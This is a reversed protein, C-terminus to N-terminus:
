YPRTPESIHILSLRLVLTPSMSSRPRKGPSVRNAVLNGDDDRPNAAFDTLQNNLIFGDVMHFSGFASEVTTTMSAVNGYKDAVTIQSTGHETGPYTGLPVPGLDGAKAKGLSRDPSILGARQRLYAPDLLTAVGRGPLPVFDPDAVYKDRDAYALREAENILHM